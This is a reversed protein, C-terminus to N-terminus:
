EMSIHKKVNNIEDRRLSLWSISRTRGVDIHKASTFLTDLYTEMISVIRLGFTSTSTEAMNQNM